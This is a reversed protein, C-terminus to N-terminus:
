ADKVRRLQPKGTRRGRPARRSAAATTVNAASPPAGCGIMTLATAFTSVARRIFTVPWAMSTRDILTAFWMPMASSTIMSLICTASFSITCDM